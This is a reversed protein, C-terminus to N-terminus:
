ESIKQNLSSVDHYVDGMSGAFADADTEYRTSVSLFSGYDAVVTHELFDMITTICDTMSSVARNVESVIENIGDVTKFTQNSLAGIETAVVAFGRGADGARAAEINANLALLNTQTSIQKIDETLENIKAVAKSQEIAESTRQKMSNYVDLARRNSDATTDHLARARSRVEESMEQGQRSLAHIAEANQQISSVNESMRATGSTTEQMGAALEQTTASNDESIRNNESMIDELREMNALIDNEVQGIDNVLQRFVGRMDSVARAMDGTEDRRNRLKQGASSSVFNLLATQRIIDTIRRIPNAINLSILFGLVACICLCVLMSGLIQLSLRDATERIEKDSATMALLIGNKLSSFSLTKATGNYSYHGITGANAGNMLFNKLDTLSGTGASAIDTGTELSPHYMISGQANCLFSYGSGLVSSAEALQTILSFDIDMGIIGVSVGDVFLPVVYSIMYVNINENLYPDMWLPSGHRVPIYYWGVHTLDTEDYMSFDTPTISTFADRTSSRTLFIGSTPETFEPNYRIYVCIS